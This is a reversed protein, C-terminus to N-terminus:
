KKENKRGEKIFKFLAKKVEEKENYNLVLRLLKSKLREKSYDRTLIGNIALSIFGTEESVIVCVADSNESIGLAARHRTGIDPNVYENKTLPLICGASYVLGKRIIVAGDHLPANNSFINRIISESPIANIITGTNTIEGLKTEREFVILAGTKSKQFELVSAIVVDISLKTAESFSMKYGNFNSTMWYRSFKSRGIQELARRLEPQFVVLLAIISFEFFKNLINIVMRLNLQYAFFYAILLILIGKVLQSARTERVLKIFNYIIFSMVIIDLFDSFRFTKMLAIFSDFAVKIFDM